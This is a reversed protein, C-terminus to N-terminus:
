VFIYGIDFISIGDPYINTIVSLFRGTSTIGFPRENYSRLVVIREQIITDDESCGRLRFVQEKSATIKTSM